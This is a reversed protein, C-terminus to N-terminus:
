NDGGEEAKVRSKKEESKNISRNIIMKLFGVFGCLYIILASILESIQSCYITLDM